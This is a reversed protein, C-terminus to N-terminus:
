SNKIFELLADITEQKNEIHSMHGESLQVVTTETGNVQELLDELNLVPDKKGLIMM